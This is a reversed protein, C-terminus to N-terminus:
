LSMRGKFEKKKGLIEAQMMACDKATIERRALKGAISLIQLSLDIEEPTKDHESSTTAIQKKNDTVFRDPNRCYEARADLIEKVKPFFNAKKRVIKAAAKFQESTVGDDVMDEFYDDALFELQDQSYGAERFRINWGIVAKQVEAITLKM